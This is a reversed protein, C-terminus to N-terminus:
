LRREPRPLHLVPQLHTELYQEIRQRHLTRLHETSTAHDPWLRQTELAGTINNLLDIADAPANNLHAGFKLLNRIVHLCTGFKKVDWEPTNRQNLNYEAHQLWLYLPPLSHVGANPSVGHQCLTLVFEPQANASAMQILPRNEEDLEEPDAGAKLLLDAIVPLDRKQAEWLYSFVYGDKLEITKVPAGLELFYKVALEDSEIVAKGLASLGMRNHLYEWPVGARKAAYIKTWDNDDIATQLSKRNLHELEM